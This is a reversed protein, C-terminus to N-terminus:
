LQVFRPPQHKARSPDDLRKLGHIERRHAYAYLVAEAV